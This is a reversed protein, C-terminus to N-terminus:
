ARGHMPGGVQVVDAYAAEVRGALDHALPADQPQIGRLCVHRPRARDREHAVLDIGDHPARAQRGRAVGALHQEVHEVGTGLVLQQLGLGVIEERRGHADDFQLFALLDPQEYAGVRELAEHCTQDEHGLLAKVRADPELDLGDQALREVARADIERGRNGLGHVRLQVQDHMGFGPVDRAVVHLADLLPDRRGRMGPLVVQLGLQLVHVALFGAVVQVLAVALGEIGCVALIVAAELGRVIDPGDLGRNM